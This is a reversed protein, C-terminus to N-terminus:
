VVEGDRFGRIERGVGGGTIVRPHWGGGGGLSQLSRVEVTAVGLGCMCGHRDEAGWAGGGGGGRVGGGGEWAMAVESEEEEEDDDTVDSKRDGGEGGGDCGTWSDYVSRVTRPCTCRRRSPGDESCVDLWDGAVFSVRRLDYGLGQGLAKVYAEKLGWNLYFRRLKGDNDDGRTKQKTKNRETENQKM